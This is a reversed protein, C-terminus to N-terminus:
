HSVMLNYLYGATGGTKIGSPLSWILHCFVLAFMNSNTQFKSLSEDPPCFASNYWTTCDSHVYLPQVHKQADHQSSLCYSKQHAASILVNDTFCRTDYRTQGPFSNGSSRGSQATGSVKDRQPSCLYVLLVLWGDLRCDVAFRCVRQLGTCIVWQRSFHSKGELFDSFSCLPLKEPLTSCKQTRDM